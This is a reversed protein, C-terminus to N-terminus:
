QGTKARRQDAQPEALKDKSAQPTVPASKTGADFITGQGTIDFSNM